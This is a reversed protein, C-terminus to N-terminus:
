GTSPPEIGGPPLAAVGAAKPVLSLLQQVAHSVNTVVTTVLDTVPSSQPPTAPPPAPPAPAASQSPAPAAVSQTV